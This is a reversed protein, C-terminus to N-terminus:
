RWWGEGFIADLDKLVAEATYENIERHRPIAVQQHGCSWVEHNAGERVKTWEVEAQKAADAIRKLLDRRRM